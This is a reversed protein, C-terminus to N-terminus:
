PTLRRPRMVVLASLAGLLLVGISVAGNPTSAGPTTSTVVFDVYPTPVVNESPDVSNESQNAETSGDGIGPVTTTVVGGDRMMSYMVWDKQYYASSVVPTSGDDLLSIDCSVVDGAVTTDPSYAWCTQGDATVFGYLAREGQQDIAPISLIWSQGDESLTVSVTTPDLEQTAVFPPDIPIYGDTVSIPDSPLSTFSGSDTNASVKVRYDEGIGVGFFTASNADASVSQEDIMVGTQLLTVTFDNVEPVDSTWEVYVASTGPQVLIITPVSCDAQAALVFGPTGIVLAITLLGSRIFRNM